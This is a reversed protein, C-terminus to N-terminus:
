FSIPVQADERTPTPLQHPHPRLMSMDAPAPPASMPPVSLYHAAAAAAVMAMSNISSTTTPPERGRASLSSAFGSEEIAVKTKDGGGGGEPYFLGPISNTSSITTNASSSCPTYHQQRPLHPHQYTPLTATPNVSNSGTPTTPPAHYNPPPHPLSSGTGTGAVSRPGNWNDLAKSRSSRPYNLSSYLFFAFTNNFNNGYLLDWLYLTRHPLPLSRDWRTLYGLFTGHMLLEHFVSEVWGADCPSLQKRQQRNSVGNWLWPVNHSACLPPISKLWAIWWWMATKGAAFESLYAHLCVM